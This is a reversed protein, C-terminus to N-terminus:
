RVVRRRDRNWGGTGPVVGRCHGARSRCGLQRGPRQREAPRARRAKRFGRAERAATATRGSSRADRSRRGQLGGGAGGDGRRRAAALARPRRRDCRGAECHCARTARAPSRPADVAAPIARRQRSQLVRRAAPLAPGGALAISRGKKAPEHNSKYEILLRDDLYLRFGTLGYGGILYTGSAPPILQGTWRVAFAGGSLRPDPAADFWHLDLRPDVRRFVPEGSLNPFTLTASDWSLGKQTKVVPVEGFYEGTVGQVRRGNMTTRLASSPVVEFAPLGDAWDTGQAYLVQSPPAIKRRIGELPTVTRVPTGNYNGLLVEEDDANPGIVAITKVARSLPLVNDDNKLLVISQRAAKLALARHEPRDVVSLPTQAYTVSEPPDFMGLRFRAAFLRELSTDIQAETALGQKVADTLAAYTTGCSLDCGAKIAMASAEAPSKAVKHTASIDDIAGCDSVVYGGFRWEKRLITDLLLPSACAPEGLLRNYACMISWAGGERVAMEFQLLYTDRLDRADVVADFVHRESEPGSHVAFHKPTAITKFYTPDDGQMGRVFAVALKGSLYPDEGYTEMGRGWRPDRFLNINPSWFTLGQYLGRQGRRAFDHHKARAEDAIATAVQNMLPVNWTAALGIAQPFVTARGARAVGHLGENWWNYAPVGLRDIAPADHQLQAVKEELTMRSILDRIREAAPLNPNLYKADAQAQEQGITRTSGCLAVAACIALAGFDSRM